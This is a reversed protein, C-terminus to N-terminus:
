NNQSNFFSVFVLGEWFFVFGGSFKMESQLCRSRIAVRSVHPNVEFVNLNLNSPLIVTHTFKETPSVLLPHGFGEFLLM